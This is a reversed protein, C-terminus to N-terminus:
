PLSLNLQQNLAFLSDPAFVAPKQTVQVEPTSPTLLALTLIVIWSAALALVLPRPPAFLRRSAGHAKALIEDKWHAPLERLDLQLLDNEFSDSPTKM